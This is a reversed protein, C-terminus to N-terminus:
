KNSKQNNIHDYILDNIDPNDALFSSIDTLVVKNDDFIDDVVWLTPRHSDDNRDVDPSPVQRCEKKSDQPM